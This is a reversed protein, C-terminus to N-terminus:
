SAQFAPNSLSVLLLVLVVLADFVRDVVLSVLSTSFPVAPMERSLAYARAVEGVRAPVVNNVMMGIAVSRWLPGFPLRPAIPDLITRWRRARLPFMMTAVVASLVLLLYNASRAAKVADGWKVDKFAFYLCVATLLIGVANRVGRKM